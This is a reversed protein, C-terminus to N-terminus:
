HQILTRSRARLDETIAAQRRSHYQAVTAVVAYGAFVCFYPMTPYRYRDIGFILAYMATNYFILGLLLQWRSSYTHSFRPVFCLALGTLALLMVAYYVGDNVIVLASAVRDSSPPSYVERYHRSRLTFRIVMDDRAYLSKIRRVTLWAERGPHRKIYDIGLRSALRDGDVETRPDDILKQIKPDALEIYGGTARPNNAQYLSVGGNNSVVVFTGFVHYNRIITPTIVIVMAAITVAVASLWARLRVRERRAFVAYVLLVLWILLASPRVLAAAGLLLGSIAFWSLRDPSRSVWIYTALAWLLTYLPESALTANWEVASPLVAYVVGAVLGSTIGFLSEGILFVIGATLANLCSQAIEGVLISPGFVKVIGALFYAWGPPWYATPYGNVTYGFGNALQIAREYYWEFDSVPVPRVALVFILRAIFAGLVIGWFAARQSKSTMM